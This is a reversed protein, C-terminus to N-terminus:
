RAQAGPTETEGGTDVELTLRAEAWRGCNSIRPLFFSFSFGRCTVRTCRPSVLNSSWNGLNPSIRPSLHEWLGGTSPRSHWPTPDGPLCPSLEQEPQLCAFGRVLLDVQLTIIIM